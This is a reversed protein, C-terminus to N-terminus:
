VSLLYYYICYDFYTLHMTQAGILSFLQPPKMRNVWQSSLEVVDEEGLRVVRDCM